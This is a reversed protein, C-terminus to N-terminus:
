FCTACKLQREIPERFASIPLEGATFKTSHHIHDVDHHLFVRSTFDHVVEYSAIICLPMNTGVCVNFSKHARVCAKQRPM